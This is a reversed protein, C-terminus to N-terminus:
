NERYYFDRTPTSYAENITLFVPARSKLSYRPEGGVIAPIAGVGGPFQKGSKVEPFITAV